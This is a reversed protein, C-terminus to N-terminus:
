AAMPNNYFSGLDIMSNNIAFLAKNATSDLM